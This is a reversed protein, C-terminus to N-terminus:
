IIKNGKFRKNYVLYDGSDEIEVIAFGLNCKTFSFTRYNPNLQTMAGVSYCIIEEGRANRQHYENTQHSHGILVDTLAKNFIGRSASVPSYTSEGFEHGHIVMLKGMHMVQKGEVFDVGLEELKLFNQISFEAIEAIEPSRNRLYNEWREEHNGVKFTIPLKVQEQLYDIFSWFMEREEGITVTYREKNFRSIAGADLIDGNLYISDIGKKIGYEIAIIIQELEHYPFHIDNFILPKKYKYKLDEFGIKIPNLNYEKGIIAPDRNQRFFSTKNEDKIQGRTKEGYNGRVSRVTGRATEVSSWLNPHLRYLEKAITRTPVNETVGNDSIYKRVLERKDM